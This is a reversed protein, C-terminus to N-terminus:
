LRRRYLQPNTPPSHQFYRSRARKASFYRQRRHQTSALICVLLLARAAAAAATPLRVRDDVAATVAALSVAGASVAFGFNKVAVATLSSPDILCPALDSCPALSAEPSPKPPSTSFFSMDWQSKESSPVPNLGGLTELCPNGRVRLVEIPDAFDATCTEVGFIDIAFAEPWWLIFIPLGTPPSIAVGAAGLGCAFFSVDPKVSAEPLAHGATRRSSIAFIFLRSPNSSSSDAPTSISTGSLM